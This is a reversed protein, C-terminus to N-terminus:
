NNFKNVNKVTDLLADNSKIFRLFVTNILNIFINRFDRKIDLFLIVRHQDTNNEVHHLFMDDFMLDSGEKWNLITGDVNIFCKEWQNPIILGLHYRIVGKYLGIHPTLKAGPRLVSFFALTCPSQNILNMTEPFSKSIETDVCFARLYLTKWGDATDCNAVLENIERHLPVKNHDIFDNGRNLNGENRTFQLFEDRIKKWNERFISTWPFDKTNLVAPDNTFYEFFNNMWQSSRYIDSQIFYYLISLIIIIIFIKYIM